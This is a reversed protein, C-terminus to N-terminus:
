YSSDGGGSSEYEIRDMAILEQESPVTLNLDMNKAEAQLESLKIQTEKISFVGRKLDYLIEQLDDFIQKITM